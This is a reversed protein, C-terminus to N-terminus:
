QVEIRYAEGFPKRGGTTNDYSAVRWFYEGPGFKHLMTVAAKNTKVGVVETLITSFDETRSFQVVYGADYHQRLIAIPILVAFVIIQFIVAAKPIREPTPMRTDGDFRGAATIANAKPIRRRSKRGDLDWACANNGSNEM